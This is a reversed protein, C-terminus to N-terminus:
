IRGELAARTRNIVYSRTNWWGDHDHYYRLYPIGQSRCERRLKCVSSRESIVEVVLARRDEQWFTFIVAPYSSRPIEHEVRYAPFEAAFLDAFYDDFRKGSSFQNEEAPMEEGWSAGFPVPASQEEGSSIVQGASEQPLNQPPIQNHVNSEDGTKDVGGMIDRAANKLQELAKEGDAGFLKSLLGM